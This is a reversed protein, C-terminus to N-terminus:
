EVPPGAERPNADDDTGAAEEASRAHEACLQTEPIVELREVGIDRGCVQCLGFTEPEKYLRRLADDIAYLRRGEVTALLFEQEQDQSETGIDAPHFRYPSMDEGARDRLEETREDFHEIADLVQERERLLRHEIRTREFDQLM